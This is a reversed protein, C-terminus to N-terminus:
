HHDFVDPDVHADAEPFIRFEVHSAKGNDNTERQAEEAGETDRHNQGMKIWWLAESSTCTWASLLIFSPISCTPFPPLRCNAPSWNTVGLAGGGLDM